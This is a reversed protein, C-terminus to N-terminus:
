RRTSPKFGRYSRGSGCVCRHQKNSGRYGNRQYRNYAQRQKYPPASPQSTGVDIDDGGRLFESSALGIDRGHRFGKGGSKGFAQRYTGVDFKRYARYYPMVQRIGYRIGYDIIKGVVM